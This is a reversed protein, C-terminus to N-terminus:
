FKKGKVKQAVLDIEKGCSNCEDILDLVFHRDESAKVMEKGDGNNAKLFNYKGLLYNYIEKLSAQVIPREKGHPQFNRYTSCMKCNRKVANILPEVESQEISPM